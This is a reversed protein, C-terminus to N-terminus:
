PQIPMRGGPAMVNALEKIRRENILFGDDVEYVQNRAHVRLFPDYEDALGKRGQEVRLVDRKSLTWQKFGCHVIKTQDIELYHRRSKWLIWAIILAFVGCALFGFRTETDKWVAAFGFCFFGFILAILYGYPWSHLQKYYRM